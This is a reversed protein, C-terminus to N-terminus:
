RNQVQALILKKTCCTTPRHPRRRLHLVQVRVGLKAVVVVVVRNVAVPVDLRRRAENQMQLEDGKLQLVLGVAEVVRDLYECANFLISVEKFSETPWM